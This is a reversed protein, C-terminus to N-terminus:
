RSRRTARRWSSSRACSSARSRTRAARRWAQARAAELALPRLQASCNNYRALPGTLYSGREIIRAHLANSHEVHEEVFHADFASPDLALGGDSVIQGLDIPYRSPERLSVHEPDSRLEGFPLQSTWRVTDLAIERARELPDILTRLESKTPARYFGGVRLNVPHVERGGVVRIIANGAQKMRLGQEVIERHDAAMEIAGPYGLFDPAHLMYVHLSHSEIWEGCYIM